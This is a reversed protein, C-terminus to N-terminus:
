ECPQLEPFEPAEAGAIGGATSDWAELYRGDENAAELTDNIFQCFEVDENQVGIGYPEETFAEGVLTFAGESADVLGLLIVNDTTVVDVQNNRMSDACESYTEFLTLQNETALYERITESPTSGDVSCVRISEDGLDDPSTVTAADEVRVMLAQGAVYYPGAFDIREAREDNITYTAAVLDVQDNILVEERIASPTEIYEIGDDGIGLETAIIKAIEVDFGEPVGDLNALGFGPQDFKTGIRITGAEALEAMTTGEAFEGTGGAETTEEAGADAGADTATTDEADTDGGCAALVLAASSLLAVGTMLRRTKM